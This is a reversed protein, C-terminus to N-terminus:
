RAAAGGFRRSGLARLRRGRGTEPDIELLEGNCTFGYLTEGFPALAWVCPSGVSGLAVLPGGDPPVEYLVDDLGRPSGPTESATVLMRGRVFAIDGSASVGDPFRAFPEVLGSEPDVRAVSREGAAVLSGDPHVDLAVFPEALDALWFLGGTAEDLEFLSRRSIAYAVGDPHLALDTLGLEVPALVRVEGGPLDVELLEDTTHTLARAVCGRELDCRHSLPCRDPRPRPTCADLREDCADETCAVGDDCPADEFVCGAAVDCRGPGTCFLGDDCRADDPEAVCRGAACRDATCALGDDCGDDDRCEPAPADVPGGDREVYALDTRAGCGALCGLGFLALWRWTM